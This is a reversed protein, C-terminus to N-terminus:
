GSVRMIESLTLDLKKYVYQRGKYMFTVYASPNDKAANEAIRYPHNPDSLEKVIADRRLEEATPLPKDPFDACGHESDSPSKTYSANFLSPAPQAILTTM